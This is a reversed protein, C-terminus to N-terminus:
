TAIPALHYLFRGLAYFIGFTAAFIFLKRMAGPMFIPEYPKETM